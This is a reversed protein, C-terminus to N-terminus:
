SRLQELMMEIQWAKINILLDEGTKEGWGM